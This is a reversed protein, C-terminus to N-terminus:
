LYSLMKCVANQLVYTANFNETLILRVSLDVAATNGWLLKM